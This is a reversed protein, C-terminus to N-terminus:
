RILNLNSQWFHSRLGEKKLVVIQSPGFISPSFTSSFSDFTHSTHIDSIRLQCFTGTKLCIRWAQVAEPNPGTMRKWDVDSFRVFSLVWRWLRSVWLSHASWYTSSKKLGSHVLKFPLYSNKPLYQVDLRGSSSTRKQAPNKLSHLMLSQYKVASDQCRQCGLNRFWSDSNGLDQM